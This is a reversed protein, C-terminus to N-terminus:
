PPIIIVPIFAMFGFGFDFALDLPLGPLFADFDV